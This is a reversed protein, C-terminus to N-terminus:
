ADPRHGLRRNTVKVFLERLREDHPHKKRGRDVIDFAKRLYLDRDPGTTDRRATWTLVMRGYIDYQHPDFHNRSSMVSELASLGDELLEKSHVADSENVAIKLKLYGMATRVLLDAPAIGAAQNLFNEALSQDGIELELSGRQLWYHHDWDMHPELEALFAMGSRDGLTKRLWDHNMLRRLTQYARTRRSGQSRVGVALAITISLLPDRISGDRILYRVVREGVVRHRVRLRGGPYELVLLRNKLARLAQMTENSPDGMGLLIQDQSLGLSYATAIAVMAYAYREQHQLQDFEEELKVEFRRGSTAELMAVLLDRNASERARFASRRKARSKKKLVGLRNARDLVALLSDIDRDTLRPVVLEEHEVRLLKFRDSIRGVRATRVALVVLPRSRANSLDKGLMSAEAGFRDADDILLVEPLEGLDALSRLDAASVDLDVSTFACDVGKGSLYLGLRMIATSKGSGATGALVVVPYPGDEVALVEDVIKRFRSEYERTAARGEILDRWTPEHGLLYEGGVPMHAETAVLDGVLPPKKLSREWPSKQNQSRFYIKSGSKAKKFIEEHFQELTMPIHEVHLERALYDRRARALKPTVLFSRRRLDKGSSASKRLQIAQWLPPEELETGVFLVPRLLIDVACQAHLPDAGPFRAGFQDASFTVHDPGDSWRGNLHVVELAGEPALASSKRPSSSILRRPLTQSAQVADALDDINLTYVKWWAASFIERYMDPVANRDVAFSTRLLDRLRSWARGRALGFLDQLGDDDRLPTGPYVLKNLAARLDDVSPIRDGLINCAAGSFGAGTFLVMDGRKLRGELYPTVHAPLRDALARQELRSSPCGVLSLLIGPAACRRRM